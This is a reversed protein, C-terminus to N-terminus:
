FGARMNELTLSTHTRAHKHTQLLPVIDNVQVVGAQPLSDQQVAPDGLVFQALGGTYQAVGHNTSIVRAEWINKEVSCMHQRHATTFTM